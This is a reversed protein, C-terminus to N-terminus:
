AAGIHRPAPQTLMDPEPGPPHCPTPHVHGSSGKNVIKIGLSKCFRHATVRINNYNDLQVQALSAYEWKGKLAERANEPGYTELLALNHGHVMTNYEAARKNWHTALTCLLYGLQTRNIVIATIMNGLITTISLGDSRVM